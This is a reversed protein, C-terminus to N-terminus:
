RTANRLNAVFDESMLEGTVNPAIGKLDFISPLDKEDPYIDIMADNVAYPFKDRRKYRLEGTVNVFKNIGAIANGLQDDKFICDVKKPGVVPYIRFTNAHAHINILELTGAISGHVIEDPGVIKDIEPALSKEIDVFVSDTKISLESFYKKPPKKTSGRTERPGINKFVELTSSDYDEPLKGSMILKVREIFRDAVLASIDQGEPHPTLEVVVTAPSSHRLDVLNYDMHPSGPEAIENEIHSLASRIADLQFIFDIIRLSENNSTDGKIQITVRRAM